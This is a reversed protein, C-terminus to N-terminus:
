GRALHYMPMEGFNKALPLRGVYQCGYSAEPDFMLMSAFAQTVYVEGVPAIPEIRAALTVETGLFSTKGIVPDAMAYVPGHHLAMRMGSGDPLGLTDLELERLAAQIELAICAAARPTEIVAFLADGWGNRFLVVDAHRDLVEAVCGMVKSWFVPLSHEALKSFGAFDSFLISYQFRDQPDTQKGADAPALRPLATGDIVISQQGTRAWEAFDRGTGAVSEHGKGDWVVVQVARGQLHNARLLALGMAQRSGYSFQGPDGVYRSRTAHTISNAASLCRYFRNVWEAGGQAVSQEIFDEQAFPLVVHLEGGRDLIAEAFLIDAGVALAGYAIGIDHQELISDIEGRVRSEARDDLFRHGAYFMVPPPQLIATAERVRTVDLAGFEAIMTMQRLTSARAGVNADPLSVALEFMTRATKFDALLLACEAATAAAYYSDASVVAPDALVRRALDTSVETRGAMHALTAANVGAFYAGTKEYVKAYADAAASFLRSREEPAAAIAEDKILRAGLAMCDTDPQLALGFESFYRNALHTAGMRALSLVMRYKAGQGASFDSVASRSLEYAELLDGRALALDIERHMPPMNKWVLGIDIHLRYAMNSACENLHM